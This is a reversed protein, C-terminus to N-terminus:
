RRRWRSCGAPRRKDEPSSRALNRVQSRAPEQTNRDPGPSSSSGRATRPRSRSANAGREPKSIAVGVNADHFF